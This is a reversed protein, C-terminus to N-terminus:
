KAMHETRANNDGGVLQQIARMHVVHNSTAQYVSKERSMVAEVIAQGGVDLGTIEAVPANHEITKQARAGLHAHKRAEIVLPKDIRLGRPHFDLADRGPRLSAERCNPRAGVHTLM